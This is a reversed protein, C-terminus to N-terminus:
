RKLYKKGNIIYLGPQILDVNENMIRRGTVDHIVTKGAYKDDDQRVADVFTDIAINKFLKWGDAAMYADVSGDPVYLTANHYVSETFPGAYSEASFDTGIPEFFIGDLLMNDSYREVNNSNVSSQIVIRIQDYDSPIILSDAIVVSDYGSIDNEFSVPYKRAGKKIKPEFILEELGDKVGYVIPHFYNPMGEMSPLIGVSVKYLGGGVNDTEYICEWSKGIGTIMSVCKGIEENLVPAILASTSYSNDAGVVITKPADFVSLRSPVTSKSTVKQINQCSGFADYEIVTLGEITVEDLSSCGEFASKGVREVNNPIRVSTLLTRNKFAFEAIETVSEPIEYAGERGVPYAILESSNKSFLVGNVSTFFRNDSEVYINKLDPTLRYYEPVDPRLRFNYQENRVSYPIFSFADSRVAVVNNSIILDEIGDTLVDYLIRISDDLVTLSRIPNIKYLNFDAPCEVFETYETEPNRWFRMLKTDKFSVAISELKNCDPFVASGYGIIGNAYENNCEYIAKVSKPIFISKLNSLGYFANSPITDWSFEYNYGGGQPGATQLGDCNKYIDKGFVSVSSPVSLYSLSVCGNFTNNNIDTVGEPIIVTKLSSCNNFADHEISNISSPIDISTLSSCGMALGVPITTVGMPISLSALSSCNEFAYSGLNRVNASMEISTLGSCGTFAWDGITTVSSPLSISTLGVCGGFADLEITVIGSPIITNKCGSVLTNTKTEIVANCNDRSDFHSNAPDVTISNLDACRSVIGFGINSVNAPINISTLSKCGSFAYNDILRVSPPIVISSISECNYFAYKAISNVGDPIVTSNCGLLLTNTETEIIANCNNRSDYIPNNSDVVITSLNPCDYLIEWDVITASEGLVINKLTNRSYFIVNKLGYGASDKANWYLTEINNCGKFADYDIIEVSSPIVISQLGIFNLFDNRKIRKISEGLVVEKLGYRSYLFTPSVPLDLYLKEINYCENFMVSGGKVLSNPIDVSTLSKCNMFAGIGISDVGPLITLSLMETCDLFAWPGIFSVSAPITLSTINCGYFACEGIEPVSSPIVSNKCGAVLTNTGTEIVANCNDRSDYVANDKDVVINTLSSCGYFAGNPIKIVSAPITVSTLNRCGKFAIDSIASVVYRNGEITVSSPISVEGQYHNIDGKTSVSAILGNESNPDQVLRYYIGDIDFIPSQAYVSTISFLAM